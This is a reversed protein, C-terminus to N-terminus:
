ESLLVSNYMIVCLNAYINSPTTIQHKLQLATKANENLLLPQSVAAENAWHLCSAAWM